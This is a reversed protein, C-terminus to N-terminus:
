LLYSPQKKRKRWCRLEGLGQGVAAKPYRGLDLGLYKPKLGLGEEMHWITRLVPIGDEM